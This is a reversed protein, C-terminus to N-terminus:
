VKFRKNALSYGNKAVNYLRWIYCSETCTGHMLLHDKLMEEPKLPCDGITESGWTLLEGTCMSSACLASPKKLVESERVTKVDTRLESLMVERALRRLRATTVKNLVCVEIIRFLASIKPAEPREFNFDEFRSDDLASNNTKFVYNNQESVIAM